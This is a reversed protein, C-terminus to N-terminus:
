SSTAQEWASYEAGDETGLTPARMARLLQSSKGGMQTGLCYKGWTSKRRMGHEGAKGRGLQPHVSNRICRASLTEAEPHILEGRSSDLIQETM